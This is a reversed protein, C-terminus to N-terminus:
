TATLCPNTMEKSGSKPGPGTPVTFVVPTVSSATQLQRHDVPDAIDVTFHDAAAPPADGQLRRRAAWNVTNGFEDIAVVTFNHTTGAGGGYLADGLVYTTGAKPM